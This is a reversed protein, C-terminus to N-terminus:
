LAAAMGIAAPRATKEITAFPAPADARTAAGAVLTDMVVSEAPTSVTERRPLVARYTELWRGDGVTADDRVAVIAGNARCMGLDCMEARTSGKPALVFEAGTLEVTSALGPDGNQSVLIFQASFDSSATKLVQAARQSEIASGSSVIVVSLSASNGGRISAPTRQKGNSSSRMSNARQLERAVRPM